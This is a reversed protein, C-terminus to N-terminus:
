KTKLSEARQVPAHDRNYACVFDHWSAEFVAESMEYRVTDSYAEDSTMRLYDTYIKSYPEPVFLERDLDTALSLASFNKAEEPAGEHTLIVERVVLGEIRSLRSLIIDDGATDPTLERHLAIAERATM